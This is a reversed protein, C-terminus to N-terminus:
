DTPFPNQAIDTTYRIVKNGAFYIILKRHYYKGHPPELTYVYILQSNRYINNLVPHGLANVVQTTTMGRKLKQLSAMSIVNGQELNPRYAICGSLLISFLIVSIFCLRQSM